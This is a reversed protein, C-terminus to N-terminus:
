PDTGESPLFVTIALTIMESNDSTKTIHPNAADIDGDLVLPLQRARKESLSLAFIRWSKWDFSQNLNCEYLYYRQNLIDFSDRQGIKGNCGAQRLMGEVDKDPSGRWDGYNEM